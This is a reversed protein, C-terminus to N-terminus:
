PVREQHTSQINSIHTFLSYSLALSILTMISACYMIAQQDLADGGILTLSLLVGYMAILCGSTGNQFTKWTKNVAVLHEIENINSVHLILGFAIFDQASFPVISGQNTVLWVLFRAFIPTLGVLVTYALWKSKATKM